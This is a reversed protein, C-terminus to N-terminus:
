PAAPLGRRARRAREFWALPRMLKLDKRGNKLAVGFSLGHFRLYLIGERGSEGLTLDALARLGKGLVELNRIDVRDQVVKFSAGGRVDEITMLREIRPPVDKYADYVMVIPRTDQLDLAIRADVQMPRTFLLTARPFRIYGKWPPDRHRLFVETGAIDFRRERPEGRRLRTIIRVDGRLTADEFRLAINQMALDMEGRLSRESSDGEFHYRLRGVGSLIAVRSEKPLYANYFGLDPIEAGPSDITVHLDAFPDALDLSTSTAEVRFGQGHAHAEARGIQTMRFDRTVAVIRSTPVGDEVKVEATVRGVGTIRSDLFVVDIRDERREWRSGPQLRGAELLLRMQMPGGGNLQLEPAKTFYIELFKMSGDRSELDFEGSIARIIEVAKRGRPVFPALRAQAELRLGAFIPQEGVRLSGSELAYDLRPFELPGRVLLNMSADLRAPGDLRYRGIWIQRIRCHLNEARVTWPPAKPRAPGPVIPPAAPPNAVGDLVPWDVAEPPPTEGPELRPRQAYEIGSARVRGLHVVRERLPLLAFWATVSSVRAQWQIARSQGGTEVGRLHVLGPWPTIGLRWVIHFKEQRRNLLRTALSTNLFLNAPVAYLAEIALAALLAMRLGKRIGPGM